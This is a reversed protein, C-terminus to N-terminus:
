IPRLPFRVAAMQSCCLAEAAMYKYVLDVFSGASETSLIRTGTKAVTCTADVNAATEEKTNDSNEKSAKYHTGLAHRYVGRKITHWGPANRGSLRNVVDVAGIVQDREGLLDHTDVFQGGSDWLSFSNARAAFGPGIPGFRPLTWFLKGDWNRFM